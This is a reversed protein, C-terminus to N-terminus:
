AAPSGICGTAVIRAIESAEDRDAAVPDNGNAPLLAAIMELFQEASLGRDLSREGPFASRGIQRGRNLANVEWAALEDM